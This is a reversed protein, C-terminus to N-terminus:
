TVLDEKKISYMNVAFLLLFLVLMNFKKRLSCTCTFVSLFDASRGGVVDGLKFCLIFVLLLRM